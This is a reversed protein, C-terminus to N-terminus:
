RTFIELFFKTKLANSCGMIIHLLTVNEDVVHLDQVGAYVAARQGVHVIWCFFACLIFIYM